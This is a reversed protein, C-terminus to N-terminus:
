SYEERLFFDTVSAHFLCFPVRIFVSLRPYRMTMRFARVFYM